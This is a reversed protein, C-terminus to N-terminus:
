YISDKIIEKAFDKEIDLLIEEKKMPSFTEIYYGKNEKILIAKYAQLINKNNLISRYKMIVIFSSNKSELNKFYNYFNDYDSHPTMTIHGSFHSEDFPFMYSMSANELITHILDNDKIYVKKNESFNEKKRFLIHVSEPIGYNKGNNIVSFLPSNKHLFPFHVYKEYWHFPAIKSLHFIRGNSTIEIDNDNKNEEIKTWNHM